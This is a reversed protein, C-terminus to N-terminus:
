YAQDYRGRRINKFGWGTGGLVIAAVLVAGAIAGIIINTGSPGKYKEIERTPAPQPLPDYISCDKGTWESNCICKGENSCVGHNYCIRGDWSSPCSSFNFAIMPLCRHNLCMMNPGCPTGDDVYGLNSGDVLLVQGGRCDVYKSQHYFTMSTIEGSLDGIKPTGTINSCLLYGCLVDQKNCQIWNQGDGGCNGKETGEINLKEYCFRDASARGWLANCQRDRTKCRGGYCRGQENECSYGDLKHVNSPCQSSDGPCMEPVDCENVSERCTTGRPEYKCGKCCLGDSCMADYTLTCKKCCRGGPQRTCEMISGCDCEEGAEVFGNGCEPSDLLKVPKDFLCWGGGDQLFHNFEDISCRSFKQPLYYGTDEMICGLWSDPCKCDGASTRQKNWMMGVNQGLTQALTIAMAGVNGYEIVGGGRAVSCIGGFYATGSRSSQFTRGSFLHVADSPEQLSERRYKMFRSLTLLPDDETRIRDASAWTEMAVLVIRTNLQERYIADALNVVSKAFNSTLIVSQRLQEFLQHDNVVMLEIYKLETQVTHQVRQVQRKRRLKPISSTTNQDMGHFMCGQETCGQSLHLAPTRHILHPHPEQQLEQNETTQPEIIYMYYGDSFVGYLGLCSSLAVVSGANGRIKGQYYCHEEAVGSTHMVNGDREYHREMYRSSLLHHNLKLDLIFASGFAHIVFSVQALHVSPGGQPEDNRVRTDLQHKQVEGGSNQGVLRSPHTIESAVASKDWRTNPSDWKWAGAQMDAKTFGSHPIFYIFATLVWSQMPSM